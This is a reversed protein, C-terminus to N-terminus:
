CGDEASTPAHGRIGVGNLYTIRARGTTYDAPSADALGFAISGGPGNVIVGNTGQGFDHDLHEEIQHGSFATRLENLTSNARINGVHTHLTKDGSSNSIALVRGSPSEVSFDLPHGDHAYRVCPADPGEYLNGKNVYGHALLDAATLALSFEGIGDFRVESADATPKPQVPVAAPLEKIMEVVQDIAKPDAPLDLHGCAAILMAALSLGNVALSRDGRQLDQMTIYDFLLTPVNIQMAAAYLMAFDARCPDSRSQVKAGSPPGVGSTAYGHASSVPVVGDTSLPLSYLHFGFLTRDVTIDGAIQSITVGHPLYPPLPGCGELLPAEREHWALCHGGSAGPPEERGMHTLLTERLDAAATGGLPSGLHPTGLTIVRLVKDAPLTAYRTALGGMSHTVLVVKGDGGAKDHAQSVDNIYQALCPAIHKDSAWYLSWPFYDFAFTSIRDGLKDRLMETTKTLPKGGWGHM